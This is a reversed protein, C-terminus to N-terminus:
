LREVLDNALKLPGTVSKPFQFTLKKATTFMVKTDKEINEADLRFVTKTKTWTQLNVEYDRLLHWLDEFPRLNNQAEILKPFETQSWGLLDERKNILEMEKLYDQLRRGLNDIVDNAEKIQFM